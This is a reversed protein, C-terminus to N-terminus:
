LGEFVSNENKSQTETWLGYIGEKIGQIFIAITNKIGRFQNAGKTRRSLHTINIIIM